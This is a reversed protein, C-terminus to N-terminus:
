AAADTHKLREDRVLFANILFRRHAKFRKTAEEETRAAVHTPIGFSQIVEDIGLMDKPNKFAAEMMREADLLQLQMQDPRSLRNYAAQAVYSQFPM